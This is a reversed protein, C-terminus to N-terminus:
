LNGAGDVARSMLDAYARLDLDASTSPIGDGSIGATTSAIV